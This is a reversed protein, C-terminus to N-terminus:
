ACIVHFRNFTLSVYTTHEGTCVEVLLKGILFLKGVLFQIYQSTFWLITNIYHKGKRQM